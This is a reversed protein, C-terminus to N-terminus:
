AGAPKDFEPSWSALFENLHPKNAHALMKRVRACEDQYRNPPLRGRMMEFRLFILYTNLTDTECYDRIRGTEGRLYAEWVKSGHMGLKGPLGLMQAIEDLPAAARLQFGALVDMLDIHRWHFRSLYNNYRFGTETEGTEWYRPAIIGHRLARYHLVPLDFGGGNWSVLDPIFKEIGEYFRSIIEAEGSDPMGLTWLRFDEGRRLVISIALIRHLHLPLFESGGTEQRRQQFMARATDEDSLGALGYLRRGAEIDPITEIDFALVNMYLGAIPARLTAFGTAM